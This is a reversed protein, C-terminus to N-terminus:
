PALRHRRRSATDEHGSDLLVIHALQMRNDVEFKRYVANVHKKVTSESILLRSAIERNTSGSLMLRMVALERESIGHKRAISAVRDISEEHVFGNPFLLQLHISLHRALEGLLALESDSFDGEEKGRFLTISGFIMRDAVLTCGMGYYLGLPEMWERFIPTSDRVQASVLDLDRYVTARDRTFCWTTYDQEAYTRYYADLAEPSFTTSVPHLYEIRGNSSRCLDFMSAQHPILHSLRELTEGQLRNVDQTGHLWLALENLECWESRNLEPYM